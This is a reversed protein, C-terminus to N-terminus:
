PWPCERRAVSYPLLIQVHEVRRGPRDLVARGLATIGYRKGLRSSAVLVLGLGLLDERVWPDAGM